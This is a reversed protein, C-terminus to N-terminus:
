QEVPQVIGAPQHDADRRPHVGSSGNTIAIGGHFVTVYPNFSGGVMYSGDANDFQMGSGANSQLAHQRHHLRHAARSPLVAGSGSM